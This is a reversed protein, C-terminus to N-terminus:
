EELQAKIFGILEFAMESEHDIELRRNLMRSLMEQILPYKRWSILNYEHQAKWIEDEESPEFLTILDEWLLKDYGEPSITEYRQKVLRYLDLVDHIKNETLIQAKWDVILYKTALSEVNIAIDDRPVIDLCARLEEKKTDDELETKKVSEEDHEARPRKLVKQNSKVVIMRRQVTKLWKLIWIFLTMLGSRKRETITEVLFRAQEDISFHDREEEQLRVVLLADADMRAQVDDFKATLAANSAEEQAFRDRQMRELEVKEEEHLRLALEEDMQIQAKGSNKPPKEPEQMIGKGKSRMKVLIQTITLDEYEFAKTTTTSPTRPEANSISEGATTVSASAASVGIIATNVADGANVTDGEVYEIAKDVMDDFDDDFDGEKIRTKLNKGQKSVNKKDLSKRRSTGIKFLNMGSNKGKAEKRIKQSEKAAEDNRPTHGGSLPSDHPTPPIFDTLDDYHAMSTQADADRLTIDQCRPRSGSEQEAELSTATTTVRVVRDDEGTYVAEDGVKKPPGSSQPIKTDRGRKAQWPTHTKQPQSAVTTVQEKHSPPATSSAPQPESPQGSGEGEVVQPVDENIFYLDSRVSSETIVVTKGDVTAHIQKVDNMTKSKATAWFQEIYSAYITPSVTLAYHISRTNSFSKLSNIDFGITFFGNYKCKEGEATNDRAANVKCSSTKVGFEDSISAILFNFRSVNFAKTLLDSVNHDTHIKIVQILRTEYSDIIFHHRIEIHKTKLRYVPNRVIFIISDNDIYIKTNIFNFGYDLMQNQIWLVRGYCNAAAVYEAETTSNAVVTQKKCQWSILRKGLFQFGRITSKRDFSAGAYDSDSFAELDFPSDRPYWLGLKPQGTLYRFIRKVAYLYSVKPTVQFRACACVAFMIDPRSAILYTLSRIISRYLHVDVDEAEKDKLLAKNTEIPTSATKVVVRLLFHDGAYFEDLVEQADIRIAEIRAVPAFVEDYNIGEEQTYGQAVLIAKNRVVIGRVTTLELNNFDVVAGEVEDDYAGSFIGTYQLDATDELDPMLPDIPLDSNPLTASNVPSSGGLNVYTSEDASVPTFMRNGNADKDQGFM